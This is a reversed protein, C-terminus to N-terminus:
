ISVCKFINSLKNKYKLAISVAYVPFGHLFNTTGDLPDIIWVYDTETFEEPETTSSLIKHEPYSKKIDNIIEQNALKKVETVFEYQAKNDIKENALHDMSRIVFKSAKRAANIAINVLAHM